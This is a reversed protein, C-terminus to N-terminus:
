VQPIIAINRRVVSLGLQRMNVGDLLVQSCACTACSTACWKNIRLLVNLLSSKGLV